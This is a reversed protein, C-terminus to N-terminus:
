TNIAAPTSLHFQLILSYTALLTADFSPMRVPSILRDPRLSSRFNSACDKITMSYSTTGVSPYPVTNGCVAFDAPSEALIGVPASGDKRSWAFLSHDVSDKFIDETAPRFYSM